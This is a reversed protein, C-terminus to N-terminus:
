NAKILKQIKLYNWVPNRVQSGNIWTEYVEQKSASKGFQNTSFPKPPNM